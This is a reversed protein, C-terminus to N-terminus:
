RVFEQVKTSVEEVATKHLWHNEGKLVVLESTSIQSHLKKAMWIPTHSDESGYVLLTPIRVKQAAAQVDCALIAKIVKKHVPSLSHSYDSGIKEYYKKKLKNPIINRLVKSIYKLIFKLFNRNTRVGASALLVMRAPSIVGEGVALIGIQGGMSHGIYVFDSLDLKKVFRQLMHAYEEPTTITLTHESKGFNPLDVSICRYSTALKNILPEFTEKSDKWGHVLLLPKGSGVDTYALVVNNVVITKHSTM